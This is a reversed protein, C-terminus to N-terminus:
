GLAGAVLRANTLLLEIITEAGSGPEGLSGTFLEIVEVNEGLESAVADALVTPQTTDAFLIDVGETRMVSVLEALEKSSPEAISSGSPIVTGVIEFEYRDAFYGMSDHNTVLKRDEADVINLIEVIDADADELEAVYAAAADTAAVGGNVQDLAAGALTAARAVRLPDMWFHPDLADAEGFQIPGLLPGLELVNAGDSVATTLTNALGEELGLGNVVVLVATNISAVQQSSPQYDHPDAGVPVLVEIDTDESVVNRLIDAIISTSVVVDAQNQTGDSGGCAVVVLAVAAMAVAASQVKRLDNM